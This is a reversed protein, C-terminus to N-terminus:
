EAMGSQRCSFHISAHFRVLYHVSDDGGCRADVWVLQGLLLLSGHHHCFLHM